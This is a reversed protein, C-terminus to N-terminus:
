KEARIKRAREEPTEVWLLLAKVMDWVGHIHDRDEQMQKSAKEFAEVGEPDRLDEPLKEVLEAAVESAKEKGFRRQLELKVQLSRAHARLTFFSSELAAWGAKWAAQKEPPVLGTADGKRKALLTAVENEFEAVPMWETLPDGGDAVAHELRNRASVAHAHIDALLSAIRNWDHDWDQPLRNGFADLEIHRVDSIFTVFTRDLAEVQSCEEALGRLVHQYLTSTRENM